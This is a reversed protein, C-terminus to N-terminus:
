FISDIEQVSLERIAKYGSKVIYIDTKSYSWVLCNPVAPAEVLGLSNANIKKAAQVGLVECLKTYNWSKGERNWLEVVLV